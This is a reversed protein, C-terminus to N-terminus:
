KAGRLGPVYDIGEGALKAVPEFREFFYTIPVDFLSAIHFLLAANPANVGREYKQIQQFSMNLCAALQEQTLNWETRLQRLKNGIHIDLEKDRFQPM